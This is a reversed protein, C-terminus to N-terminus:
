LIPFHSLLDVICHRKVGEQYRLSKVARYLKIQNRGRFSRCDRKMDKSASGQEGFGIERITVSWVKIGL